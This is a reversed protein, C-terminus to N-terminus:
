PWFLRKVDGVRSLMEGLRVAMSSRASESQYRARWEANLPGSQRQYVLRTPDIKLGALGVARGVESLYPEPEVVLREYTIRVPDIRNAAFFDEFQRNHRCISAIGKRVRMADYRPSQGSPSTSLKSSWMGTQRAIELSIAQGLTDERTLFIFHSQNLIQDLIGSEGLMELHPIALKCAVINRGTARRRVHWSFYEQLSRHGHETAQPVVTADNLFEGARRFRRTSVLLDALFNSGCRNTYCLFVFKLEAPVDAPVRDIRGFHRQLVEMHGNRKLRPYFVGVERGGDQGRSRLRRARLTEAQGVTKFRM